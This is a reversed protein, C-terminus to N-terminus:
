ANSIGVQKNFIRNAVYDSNLEIIKGPFLDQSCACRLFRSIQSTDLLGSNSVSATHHMGLSKAAHIALM